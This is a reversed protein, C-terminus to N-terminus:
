STPVKSAQEVDTLIYIGTNLPDEVLQLKHFAGTSDRFYLFRDIVIHDNRTEGQSVSAVVNDLSM